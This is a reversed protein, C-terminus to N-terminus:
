PPRWSRPTTTARCRATAGRGASPSAIPRLARRPSRSRISGGVPSRPRSAAVSTSPGPRACGTPDIRPSGSPAPWAAPRRTRRARSCSTARASRPDPRPGSRARGGAGRGRAPPRGRAGDRDDGEHRGRWPRLRLRRGPRGRVSRPELARGTGPRRRPAVPPPAARRGHRRRPAPCPGLRSGARARRDRTRPRGGALMQAIRRAAVLEGDPADPPAPNISPIRILDRVTEVLEDGARDWTAADLRRSPAEAGLTVARHRRHHRDRHRDRLWRVDARRGDVLLWKGYKREEALGAEPNPDLGGAIYPAELGKARAIRARPSDYAEPDPPLAAPRSGTENTM